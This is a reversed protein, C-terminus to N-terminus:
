SDKADVFIWGATVPGDTGLPDVRWSEGGSSLCIYAVIIVTEIFSNPFKNERLGSVKCGVFYM